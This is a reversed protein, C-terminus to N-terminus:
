RRSGRPHARCSRISGFNKGSPSVRHIATRRLGVSINDEKRHAVKVVSVRKESDFVRYLVRYDGIRIRFINSSGKLKASNPPKPVNQLSIIKKIVQSKLTSSLKDIDKQALPLIEVRYVTTELM